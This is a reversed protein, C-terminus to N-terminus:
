NTTDVSQGRSRLDLTVKKMDSTLLLIFSIKQSGTVAIFADYLLQGYYFNKIMQLSVNNKSFSENTGKTIILDQFILLENIDLYNCGLAQKGFTVKSNTVEVVM